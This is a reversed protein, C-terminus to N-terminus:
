NVDEPRQIDKNNSDQNIQPKGEVRTKQMTELMDKMRCQLSDNWNELKDLCSNLQDLELDLAEYEKEDEVSEGNELTLEETKGNVEDVGNEKAM